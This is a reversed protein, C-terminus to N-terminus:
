AAQSGSSVGKRYWNLVLLKTRQPQLNLLGVLWGFGGENLDCAEVWELTDTMATREATTATPKMGKAIEELADALVTRWLDAEGSSDQGHLLDLLQDPLFGEEIM